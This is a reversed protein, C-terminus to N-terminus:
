AKKMDAPDNQRAPVRNGMKRRDSEGGRMCLPAEKRERNPSIVNDDTLHRFGGGV